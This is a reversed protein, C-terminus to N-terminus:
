AAPSTTDDTAEDAEEATDDTAEEVPGAASDAPLAAWPDALPDCGLAGGTPEGAALVGVALAAAGLVEAALM